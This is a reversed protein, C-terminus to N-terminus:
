LIHEGTLSCCTQQIGQPASVRQLRSHEYKVRERCYERRISAEHLTLNAHAGPVWRLMSTSELEFGNSAALQTNIESVALSISHHFRSFQDGARSKIASSSSGGHRVSQRGHEHQLRVTARQTCAHRCSDRHPPWHTCEFCVCSRGGRTDHVGVRWGALWLRTSLSSSWSESTDCSGGFRLAAFGGLDNLAKQRVFIPGMDIHAAYMARLTSGRWWNLRSTVRREFSMRSGNCHPCQWRFGKPTMAWPGWGVAGLARDDVLMHEISLLWGCSIPLPTELHALLLLPARALRALLAFAHLEDACHAEAVVRAIGSLWTANIMALVAAAPFSGVDKNGSDVALHVLVEVKSCQRWRRLQAFGTSAQVVVDQSLTAVNIPILVSLRLTGQEQRNRRARDARLAVRADATLPVAPPPVFAAGLKLLVDRLARALEIGADGICLADRPPISWTSLSSINRGRPDNLRATSYRRRYFHVGDPSLPFVCRPWHRADSLMCRDALLSDFMAYLRQAHHAAAHHFKTRRFWPFAGATPQEM